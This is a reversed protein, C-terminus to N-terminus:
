IAAASHVKRFRFVYPVDAAFREVAEWQFGTRACLLSLSRRTFLCTHFPTACASHRLGYHMRSPFCHAMIGTPKLLANLGLWAEITDGLHEIVDISVLADFAGHRPLDNRDYRFFVDDDYPYGSLIDCCRADRGEARLTRAPSVNPGCGFDLIRADPPDGLRRLAYRMLALQYAARSNERYLQDGSYIGEYRQAVDGLGADLWRSFLHGCATCLHKRHAQVEELAASAGDIHAAAEYELVQAEDADCIPCAVGRQVPLRRQFLRDGAPVAKALTRRAIRKAWNVASM